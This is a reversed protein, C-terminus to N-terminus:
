LIHLAAALLECGFHDVKTCAKATPRHSGLKGGPLPMARSRARSAENGHQRAFPRRTLGSNESNTSSAARIPVDPRHSATFVAIL